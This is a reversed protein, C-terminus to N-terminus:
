NFSGWVLDIAIQGNGTANNASVQLTSSAVDFKATDVNTDSGTLTTTVTAVNNAASVVHDSMAYTTNNDTPLQWTGTTVGTIHGGSDRTVGTIAFFKGGHSLSSATGEAANLTTASYKKHGIKIKQNTVDDTLDIYKDADTIDQVTNEEFQVTPKTNDSGKLVIKHDAELDLDYTTNNDSPLTYTKTVLGTVHGRDNTIVNSIASFTGSHNLTQTDTGNDADTDVTEHAYTITENGATGSTNVTVGAGAAFYINDTGSGTGGATLVVKSKANTTVNEASIAYTTNNDSPLTYTKTVLGTVHGNGNVIVDSIAEFSDSHNLIQEDTDNDADTDVTDHSITIVDNTEDADILICTGGSLTVDSELGTVNSTLVIDASNEGDEVAIAHQTDADDGSPVYTWTIAGDIVGNEESGSAILLDGIDCSHGGYTGVAAVKYTWGCQISGNGSTPLTSVTAGTGGVTGKYVMANVANLKSDIEDASYFSGLSSQNYVTKETGDVTIKHYLVDSETEEVKDGDSDVVKVGISGGSVTVDLSANKTNNDTPLTVERTTFGTIHGNSAEIDDIITFTGGHAPKLATGENATPDNYAAHGYTVVDGSATVTMDLGAAMTVDDKANANDSNKLRIKAAQNETLATLDYTTNNDKPLTIQRTTYGTIHGKDATVSDIVTFSGGHGPTQATGPTATPAAYEKHKIEIVEPTGAVNLEIADNKSEFHVYDDDGSSDLNLKVKKKDTVTEASLAYTTNNNVSSITIDDGSVTVTVNTGGKLNIPESSDSGEGITAIKAGGTVASASLGVKTDPLVADLDAASITFSVPIEKKFGKDGWESVKDNTVDTENLDLAKQVLNFSIDIGAATANVTADSASSIFTDTDTDPPNIQTWIQQINSGAPNVCVLLMNGASVWVFDGQAPKTPLKSTDAVVSIYRNLDVLNKSANGVYLRNTDTTLYFVGDIASGAQPLATSLGRKFAVNAM